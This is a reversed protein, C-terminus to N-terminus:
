PRAAAVSFLIRDRVCHRWSVSSKWGNAVVVSFRRVVAPRDGFCANVSIWFLKSNIETCRFQCVIRNRDFHPPWEMISGLKSGLAPDIEAASYTFVRFESLTPIPRYLDNPNNFLINYCTVKDFISVLHKHTLVTMIKKEVFVHFDINTALSVTFNFVHKIHSFLM